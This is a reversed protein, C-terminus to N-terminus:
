LFFLCFRLDASPLCHYLDSLFDFLSKFVTSLILLIFIQYKSLTFLNSLSRLLSVLFFLSLVWLFYFIFLSVDWSIVASSCFFFFFSIISHAIIHWCIQCSLSIPLNRSVYLEGLSIRSAFSWKFLSIMLFSISYTIIIFYSVEFLLGTCINECAFEVM